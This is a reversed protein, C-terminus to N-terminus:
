NIIHVKKCSETRFGVICLLAQVFRIVYKEQVLIAQTRALLERATHDM